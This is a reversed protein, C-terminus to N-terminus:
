SGARRPRLLGLGQRAPRRRLNLRREHRPTSRASAPEAQTRDALRRQDARLRLDDIRALGGRYTVCNGIM